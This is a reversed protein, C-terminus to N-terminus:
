DEIKRNGDDEEKMAAEIEKVFEANEGAGDQKTLVDIVSPNIFLTDREQVVVWGNSPVPRAQAEVKTVKMSIGDEKVPEADVKQEFVFEDYDCEYYGNLLHFTLAGSVAVFKSGTSANEYPLIGVSLQFDKLFVREHNKRFLEKIWGNIELQHGSGVNKHSYISLWWDYYPSNHIDSGSEHIDLSAAIKSFISAVQGMYASCKPDVRDYTIQLQTAWRTLGVYDHSTGNVKISPLGCLFTMCSYYHQLGDLVAIHAARKYAPTATSMPPMLLDLGQPVMDGDRLLKIFDDVPLDSVNGVQVLLKVKDNSKTFFERYADPKDKIFAMLETLVIYWLDHPNIAIPHHRSYCNSLLEMFGSTYGAFTPKKSPTHLLDHTLRKGDETEFPLMRQLQHAFGETDQANNGLPAGVPKNDNLRIEM